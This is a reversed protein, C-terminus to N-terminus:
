LNRGRLLRTEKSLEIVPYVALLARYFKIDCGREIGAALSVDGSM